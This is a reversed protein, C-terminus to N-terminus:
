FESGALGRSWEHSKEWSYVVNGGGKDSLLRLSLEDELLSAISQGYAVRVGTQTDSSVHPHATAPEGGDPLVHVLLRFVKDCWGAVPMADRVDPADPDGGRSLRRLSQFTRVRRGFGEATMVGGSPLQGALIRRLAIETKHQEGMLWYARVIDAAGAIWQPYEARRGNAYVIQPWSGDANASADLFVMIDSAARRYDDDGFFGVAALLPPVCRANYFPFFRGDGTLNDPAYQHVAGSWRGERVQLRVIDGVAAHAYPVYRDDGTIEMYRIFAEALTALKNPVRGRIGPRDNFGAGDADWLRAVINDLNRRAVALAHEQDALVDSAILLGLTAAAEHPTGLTGPNMEFQSARYSGDGRQGNIVDSTAAQLRRLWLEAGTESYLHHYGALIGEYRWDIAAGTYAFSQRWWHAVPGGYGGSQRMTELWADLNAISRSIKANMGAPTPIVATGIVAASAM